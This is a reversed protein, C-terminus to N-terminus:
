VYLREPLCVSSVSWTLRDLADNTKFEHRQEQGKGGGQEEANGRALDLLNM